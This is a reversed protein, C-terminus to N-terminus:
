GDMENTASCNSLAASSAASTAAISQLGDGFAFFFIVDAGSMGDDVIRAFANARYCEAHIRENYDHYPAAGLERAIVGTYPNERPPQYFHGHVVLARREAM